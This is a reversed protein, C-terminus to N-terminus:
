QTSFHNKSFTILRKFAQIYKRQTEDNLVHSVQNSNIKERASRAHIGVSTVGMPWAANGISLKLYADSAKVFQRAEIFDVIATVHTMIEEPANKTKLLRFFRKLDEKTQAHIGVDRKLALTRERTHLDKEWTFLLWKMYYLIYEEADECEDRSRKVAYKNDSATPPLPGKVVPVVPTPEIVKAEGSPVEPIDEKVELRAKKDVQVDEVVESTKKKLDHRQRKNLYTSTPVASTTKHGKLLDRLDDM